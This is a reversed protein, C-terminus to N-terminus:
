VVILTFGHTFLKLKQTKSSHKKNQKRWNKNCSNTLNVKKKINLM